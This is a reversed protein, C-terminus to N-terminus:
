GSGSVWCLPGESRAARLPIEIESSVANQMECRASTTPASAETMLVDRWDMKLLQAGHDASIIELAPIRRAM